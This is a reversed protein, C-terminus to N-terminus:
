PTEGEIVHSFLDSCPARSARNAEVQAARRAELDVGRSRPLADNGKRNAEEAVAVALVSIPMLRVLPNTLDVSGDPALLELFPASSSDDSWANAHAAEFPICM